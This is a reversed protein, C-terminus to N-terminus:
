IITNKSNRTDVQLYSQYLRCHIKSFEALPGIDVPLLLTLQNKNYQM